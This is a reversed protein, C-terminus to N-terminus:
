KAPMPATGSTSPAVPAMTGPTTIERLLGGGSVSGSTTGAGQIRAVCDMRDREPLPECRQIANREFEATSAGNQVPQKMARVAGAERLCATRDTAPPAANCAAVDAQYRAESGPLGAALAPAATLAASLTLMAWLPRTIPHAHLNM